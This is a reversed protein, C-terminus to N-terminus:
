ASLVGPGPRENPAGVADEGGESPCKAACGQWGVCLRQMQRAACLHVVRLTWAKQVPRVARKKEHPFLAHQKPMM